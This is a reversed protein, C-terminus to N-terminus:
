VNLVNLRQINGSSKKRSDTGRERIEGLLILKELVPLDTRALLQDKLASTIDEVTPPAENGSMVANIEWEDPCRFGLIDFEPNVDLSTGDLQWLATSGDLDIDFLFTHSGPSFFSPIGFIIRGGPILTFNNRSSEHSIPFSFEQTNLYGFYARYVSTEGEMIVDICNLLPIVLGSGPAPPPFVPTSPIASPTASPTSPVPTPASTPSPTPSPTPPLACESKYCPNAASFSVCADTCDILPNDDV